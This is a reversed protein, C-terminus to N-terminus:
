RITFGRAAVAGDGAANRPVAQLRYAGKALKRGKLRGSFRLSNAGAKDVHTFSGMLMYRTCRRGHRNAKSPQRCSRGQRRGAAPRLVTFTTTAAQSDRYSVTTGYKRKASTVTAGSPAAFFSSPNLALATILGLQPKILIVPIVPPPSSPCSAAHGQLEFAGKDQVAVCDGNGDLVRPGGALDTTSPSLGPPLVALAAPVSDVATSLPNLAYNIGPAVFLSAPSSATNGSAGTACEIRGSTGGEAQTQSPVDSSACVISAKEGKAGTALTATQSELAISGKLSVEANSATGTGLATVGSVPLADATGLVGADITSGLITLARKKSAQSFYVGTSGGLVLASDLTANGGEVLVAGPAAAAPSQVVSRQVFMPPGEGGTGLFLLATSNAVLRSDRLTSGAYLSELAPGKWAGTVELHQLMAASFVTEVAPQGNAPNGMTVTAGNVSFGAGIALVGAGTAGNAVNVAVNTLQAPSYLSEIGTGTAGSAMTVTVGNLLVTGVAMYLGRGTNGNEMTVSGGNFTLSGGEGSSIGNRFGTSHIDIAVNNLVLRSGNDIGSGEQTAPNVISLNSLTATNGPVLLRVTAEKSAPVGEVQTGGPGTGAGVIAIGDDGPNGLKLNEQYLGAAVNITAADEVSESKTVAAGITKCPAGSATCPNADNGGSANVFFVSASAASAGGGVVAAALIGACVVRVGRM